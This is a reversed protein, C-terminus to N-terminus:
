HMMKKAADNLEKMPYKFGSKYVVHSLTVLACDDKMASKLADINTTIGDESPIIELSNNKFHQKLIGEAVYLDTPFNLADTILKKKKSNYEIGAYIAKYLNLSTSDGVFIEDPHAGVITAIKSALQKPLDLWHENWSRILRNGWQQEVVEKSVEMAAKPLKGLSNGDLYILNPNSVFLDKFEALEDSTDFAIAKKLFENM